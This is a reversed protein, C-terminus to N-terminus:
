KCSSPHWFGSMWLEVSALFAISIQSRGVTDALKSSISKEAVDYGSIRSPTNRKHDLEENDFYFHFDFSDQENMKYKMSLGETADLGINWRQDFLLLIRRGYQSPAPHLFHCPIGGMWYPVINRVSPM